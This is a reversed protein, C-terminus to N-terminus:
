LVILMIYTKKRADNSHPFLLFPFWPLPPSILNIFFFTTVIITANKEPNHKISRFVFNTIQLANIWIIKSLSTQNDQLAMRALLFSFIRQKIITFVAVDTTHEILSKKKKFFFLSSLCIVVLHWQESM